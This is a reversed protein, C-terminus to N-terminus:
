RVPRIPFKVLAANYSVSSKSGSSTFGFVYVFRGYSDEYSEASMLYAKSSDSISITGAPGDDPMGYGTLPLYISNGNPGTVKIVSVGNLTTSTWTCNSHLENIESRSPIRWNGGWKSRVIDYQTGSISNVSPPTYFLPVESGTPDGWLYYGGTASASSAGYNYQAWKVSLGLDVAKYPDSKVSVSCKATKNGDQTTVTIVASGAAKATVKGSSNVSAVSSNSSTWSVVKNTANSPSVTATLTESDNEYMTLSSKNLTVGTVSVPSVTVNCTAKKGGDSTTATIVASGVAKATVYGSSSVTAVSTNSSSWSVSKNTANSPTVTANLYASSGVTLSLTSRDLTIGTVPIKVTVQCTATKAGDKTTVTITASGSAKATVLGSSSVTAVSTNSSTWTVSKDSANSPTVTASLQYTGGVALTLSADSITVGTVPVLVTVSCSAVFGGDYTTAKIQASGSSVATVKGTYDVTAVSTNTSSWIVESQTADSPLVTANLTKAEGIKLSVSTQDLKVSTVSKRVGKDTVPRVLHGSYRYSSYDWYLTSSYIRLSSACYSSPVRLSSSWYNVSSGSVPLFISKGNKKSIAKHVGVGNLTTWIWTCNENLEDLEERTPMRWNGGWNTRAADDSLELTMKNDVPGRSPDANYKTLSNEYSGYKYTDWSYDSKPSTEGWAFSSGCDSPSSAGVNCTAWKIGSPLGLDVYGYGNESGDSFSENVVTVNCNAVFGGDYTTAKIKASGPSIATVNGTYDVEAVSTNTSSWIVEPQTADSPLVTANITATQGIKLSLSSQDLSISAVSIRIGKETVPRVSLGSTRATSCPCLVQSYHLFIEYANQTDEKNLSSSWYNGFSEYPLFISNGNQKSAVIYGKHGDMTTYTWDCNDWLEEIEKRTPMRWSAGWNVTAADDTRELTIKNDVPGMSSNTNYKTLSTSSSGYKYTEWSYDTKPSTEGWAFYSGYDSPSTAGVNCTAWNVSLGLDVYEHPPNVKVACTATFGGDETRVTITADGEEKATVLGTSSVTAVFTNSSEWSVNKNAANSPTITASLQHTDGAYLALSADSISVGSVPVPVTVKCSAELGGDYTTAKIQASGSSVATVKGTYDVTAVSTNTSSWIVDPQTADTPLVTANLTETQGIILTLSQQDLEISTVSKRVGKDSVPRIPLGIYRYNSAKGFDTSNSNLYFAYGPSSWNLSLSWYRGYTGANSLSTGSRYGAAPLFLSKENNKSTLKYGNIGNQATWELTCNDRLEDLEEKTPIRWCGGWKVNAADDSLELTLKNDVSGNSSKTNYKTLLTASSGYKYTSWSYNSKTETEGWAFYDGYEEPTSAGLNYLAWKIGSPLGLDVFERGNEDGDSYAKVTLSCVAELAGDYTTAKIQTSGFSVATVKGTYDVTAIKTNSSSWIVEPQTADVPLVTATLTEEQGEKLTLSTQDLEISEVSKRVGKDSVPRVSLGNYRTFSESVVVESESFELLHSSISYGLNCALISTWYFGGGYSNERSEYRRGALPLFISKGNKSVLYGSKGNMEKWTWVCNAKLEEIESKTPIRWSGGWKVNAADDSLELIVKNDVTGRSPDTNYKTLSTASSGYKYTSWSYNSKPSTEGWAFYSGDEEPFSAGVNCTAWKIGSPLGLDVYEHGNESGDYAGREGKQSVTIDATASKSTLVLRGSRDYGTNKEPVLRITWVNAGNDSIGGVKLWEPLTTIGWKEGSQVGLMYYEEGSNLEISSKDAVVGGVNESEVFDTCATFSLLSALALFLYTKVRIKM